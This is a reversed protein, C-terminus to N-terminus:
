GFSGLVPSTKKFFSNRLIECYECSFAQRLTEKLYNKANLDAIKNFLFKLM